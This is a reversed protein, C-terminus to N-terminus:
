RPRDCRPCELEGSAMVRLLSGCDPCYYRPM